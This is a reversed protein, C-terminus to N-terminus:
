RRLPPQGLVTPDADQRRNCTTTFCLLSQREPSATGAAIRVSDSATRCNGACREPQLRLGAAAGVPQARAAARSCGRPTGPRNGGPRPRATGAPCRETARGALDEGAGSRCPRLLSRHVVNQGVKLRDPRDRPCVDAEPVAATDDPRRGPTARHGVIIFEREKPVEAAPRVINHFVAFGTADPESHRDARSRETFDCALGPAPAHVQGQLFTARREPAVSDLLQDNGVAM